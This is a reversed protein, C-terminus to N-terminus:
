CRLCPWSICCSIHSSVEKKHHFHRSYFHGLDVCFVVFPSMSTQCEPQEVKASENGSLRCVFSGNTDAQAPLIM